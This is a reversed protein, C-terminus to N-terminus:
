PYGSLIKIYDGMGLNEARLNQDLDLTKFIKELENKDFSKSLANIIKKRRQQFSAKIINRLLIPDKVEQLKERVKFSVFASDVKPVPFFVNAPVKFLIKPVSFYQVLLTLPGYSKTGVKASVRQAVEYQLMLNIEKILDLHSAPIGIEGFIKVLIKSTINYPINGVIKFPSNILSKLNLSLFDKEVIEVNSIQKLSLNEKLKKLIEREVEVAFVKKVRPSLLTTLNGSGAGIELVIDNSSLNIESIIKNLYNKDTLLNQGFRKKM